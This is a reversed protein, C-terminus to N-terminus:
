PTGGDRQAGQSRAGQQIFRLVAAKVAPVINMGCLGIVFATCNVFDPQVIGLKDVAVPTFYSATAAGVVVACLAQWRNLKQVFALSVVGGAFGAVTSSLKVGLAGFVSPIPENM